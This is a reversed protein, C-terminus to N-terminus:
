EWGPVWIIVIVYEQSPITQTQEQLESHSEKPIEIKSFTIFFHCSTDNLIKQPLGLNNRCEVRVGIIDLGRFAASGPDNCANSHRQGDGCHMICCGVLCAELILM